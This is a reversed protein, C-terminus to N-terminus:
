HGANKSDMLDEAVCHYWSTAGVISNKKEDDLRYDIGEHGDSIFTGKVNQAGVV